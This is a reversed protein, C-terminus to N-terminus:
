LDTLIYSQVQIVRLLSLQPIVEKELSQTMPIYGWVKQVLYELCFRIM